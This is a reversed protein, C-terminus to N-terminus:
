RRPEGAKPMLDPCAPLLAQVQMNLFDKLPVGVGAKWSTEKVNKGRHFCGDTETLIDASGEAGAKKGALSLGREGGRMVGCAVKEGGEEPHSGSSCLHLVESRGWLPEPFKDAEVKDQRCGGVEQQQRKADFGSDKGMEKFGREIAGEGWGGAEAQCSKFAFWWRWGGGVESGSVQSGEVEVLTVPLTGITIKHGMEAWM